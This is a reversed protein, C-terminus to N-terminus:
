DNNTENTIENKITNENNTIENYFSILHTKLKKYNLVAEMFYVSLIIHRLEGVKKDRKEKKLEDDVTQITHEFHKIFHEKMIPIFQTFKNNILENNLISLMAFEINKYKIIENYKSCNENTKLIGPENLLPNENLITCLTLLISSLSQCSTWQEGKWTNLISLCVKGTKYLNPNFRTIGDNTCYNLKPPAYPYNPPYNIEFLYFGNEYPTQSPGIFARGKLLNTDDHFYYIGNDTLPNKMIEKVDNLLRKITEKKLVISNDNDINNNEM